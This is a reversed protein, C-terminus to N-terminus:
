KITELTQSAFANARQILQQRALERDPYNLHMTQAAEIKWHEREFTEEYGAVNNRVEAVKDVMENLTHTGYIRDYQEAVSSKLSEYAQDWSNLGEDVDAM